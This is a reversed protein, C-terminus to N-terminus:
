FFYKSAWFCLVLNLLFWKRRRANKEAGQMCIWAQKKFMILFEAVSVESFNNLLSNELVRDKLIEQPPM